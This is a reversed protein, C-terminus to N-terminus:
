GLRDGLLGFDAMLIGYDALKPMAMKKVPSSTVAVKFDDFM